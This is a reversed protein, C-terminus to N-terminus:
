RKYAEKAKKYDDPDIKHGFRKELEELDYEGKDDKLARKGKEIGGNDLRDAYKAKLEKIVAADPKIVTIRGSNELLAVGQKVVFSLIVAILVCLLVIALYVKISGRKKKRSKKWPM